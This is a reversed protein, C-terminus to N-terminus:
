TRMRSSATSCATRRDSDTDSRADTARCPPSRGPGAQARSAIPCFATGPASSSARRRRALRSRSDAREFSLLSRASARGLPQRFQLDLALGRELLQRIELRAPLALLREDMLYTAQAFLEFERAADRARSVTSTPHTGRAGARALEGLVFAIPQLGLEGAHIALEELHLALARQHLDDDVRLRDALHHRTSRSGTPLIFPSSIESSETESLGGRMQRRSHRDV